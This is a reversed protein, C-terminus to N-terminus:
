VHRCRGHVYARVPPLLLVATVQAREWRSAADCSTALPSDNIPFEHPMRKCGPPSMGNQSDINFCQMSCYIRPWTSLFSSQSDAQGQLSNLWVFLWVLLACRRYPSICLLSPQSPCWVIWRAHCAGEWGGCGSLLRGVTANSSEHMADAARAYKPSSSLRGCCQIAFMLAAMQSKSSPLAQLGTAM